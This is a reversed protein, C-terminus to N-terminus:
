QNKQCTRKVRQITVPRGFLNALSFNKPDGLWSIDFKEGNEASHLIRKWLRRKEEEPAGMEFLAHFLISYIKGASDNKLDFNLMNNTFASYRAKLDYEIEELRKEM